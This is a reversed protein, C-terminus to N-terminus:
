ARKRNDECEMVGVLGERDQEATYVQFVHKGGSPYLVWLFCRTNCIRPLCCHKSKTLGERAINNGLVIKDLLIETFDFAVVRRDFVLQLVQTVGDNSM